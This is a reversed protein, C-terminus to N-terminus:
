SAAASKSFTSLPNTADLDPLTQFVPLKASSLLNKFFFLFFKPRGRGVVM